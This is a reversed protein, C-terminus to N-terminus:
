LLELSGQQGDLRALRGLPLALNPRGHGVPLHGVLPVGLDALRDRLVEEMSLDGPLIDDGRWRFHGLGVGVVGQLVGSCRWQTLLRDVRYPEEGVDELVLLCGALRPFWPTGILSTAVTLNSVVLPGSARGAQWGEGRLPPVAEARLLRRLREWQEADGGPSGHVAGGVGAAFQALLLARADSYGVLWRPTAPPRWGRELLRASGWGGAVSVVAAVAPDTMAQALRRLREGDPESFWRWRGQIAAPVTLTWGAAAFRGRLSEAQRQPDEWWTGPAIAMVQSGTQVPPPMPLPQRRSGAAALGGAGGRGIAASGSILALWGGLLPRRRM